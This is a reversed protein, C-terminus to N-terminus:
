MTFVSVSITLINENLYGYDIKHNATLSNDDSKYILNGEANYKRSRKNYWSANYIYLKYALSSRFKLGKIIDVEGYVNGDFRWGNQKNHVQSMAEIPNKFKSFSIDSGDQNGYHGNSYMVPVTPRTFWTLSRMLGNDGGMGGNATINEKSGSLNLGIKFRGFQADSNSRFNFREYGTHEMIGDQKLYGISMMYHANKSGGSVSLSHQTMPATRFLADWWDTNAFHDPDSGDRLKDLMEQTYTQTNNSENYMKAWEYSNVYHPKVTASQISYSGNYNISPATEGGRKTTVLIVGNAARVGYIAASAADKLVSINDIDGPALEALQGIPAEVGDILLMPNNNGFTGVGRIRIEPSDAGAQGGNSTLTVGPLRGQLLAATNAVPISSIEKSSVSAVSGTLNAKKQTGYGVVVVENISKNDPILRISINGTGVKASSVKYGLYSINVQKVNTPVSVSFHGDLDTVTGHSTGPVKVTAGMLPEGNEDLVIGTVTKQSQALIQTPTILATMTMGLMLLKPSVLNFLKNTM